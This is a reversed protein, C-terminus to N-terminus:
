RVSNALAGVDRTTRTLLDGSGAREVTSLPIGLVRRVFDERLEALVQEGLRASAFVAFRTLITQAVVFGAIALVVGDVPAHTTGDRIAQVLGGLLRPM